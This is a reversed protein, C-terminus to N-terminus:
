TGWEWEFWTNIRDWTGTDTHYRTYSDGEISSPSVVLSGESSFRANTTSSHYQGTLMYDGSPLRVIGNSDSVRQSTEPRNITGDTLTLNAQPLTPGGGRVVLDLQGTVDIGMLSIGNELHAAVAYRTLRTWWSTQTWDADMNGELWSSSNTATFWLDGQETSSHAEGRVEYGQVRGEEIRVKYPAVWGALRDGTSAWLTWNADPSVRVQVLDPGAHTGYAAGRIDLALESMNAHLDVQSARWSGYEVGSRSGALTASVLHGDRVKVTGDGVVSRIQGCVNNRDLSATQYWSSVNARGGCTTISANALSHEVLVGTELPRVTVEVGHTSLLCSDTMCHLRGQPHRVTVDEPWSAYEHLLGLHGEIRVQEVTVNCWLRPDLGLRGEAHGLESKVAFALEGEGPGGFLADWDSSGELHIQNTTAYTVDGKVEVRRSEGFGRVNGTMHHGGEFDNDDDLTYATATIGWDGGDPAISASGYVMVDHQGYDMRPMSRPRAVLDAVSSVMAAPSIMSVREIRFTHFEAEHSFSPWKAGQSLLRRTTHPTHSVSTNSKIALVPLTVLKIDMKGTTLFSMPHLSVDIVPAFAVECDDRGESLCVPSRWRSGIVRYKLPFWGQIRDWVLISHEPDEYKVWSSFVKSAIWNQTDDMQVYVVLVSPIIILLGLTLGWCWLCRESRRM